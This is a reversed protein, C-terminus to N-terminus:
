SDTVFEFYQAEVEIPPNTYPNPKPKIATILLWSLPLNLYYVFTKQQLKRKIKIFKPNNSNKRM